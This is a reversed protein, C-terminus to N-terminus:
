KACNQASKRSKRGIKRIKALIAERQPRPVAEARLGCVCVWSHQTYGLGSCLQCTGGREALRERALQMGEAIRRVTDADPENHPFYRVAGDKMTVKISSM